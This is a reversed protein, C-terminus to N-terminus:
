IVAILPLRYVRLTVARHGDASSRVNLRIHVQHVTGDQGVAANDLAIYVNIIVYREGHVFTHGLASDEVALNGNIVIVVDVANGHRILEVAHVVGRLKQVAATACGLGGVGSAFRAVGKVAPVLSVARLPVEARLHRLVDGERAPLVERDIIRGRQLTSQRIIRHVNDPQRLVDVNAAGEGDATRNGEIQITIDQPISIRVRCSAYELNYGAAIQGDDVASGFCFMLEITIIDQPHQIFM